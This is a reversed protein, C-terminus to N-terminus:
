GHKKSEVHVGMSKLYETLREPDQAIEKPIEYPKPKLVRARRTLRRWLSSRHKEENHPFMVIPLQKQAEEADLADMQSILLNVM